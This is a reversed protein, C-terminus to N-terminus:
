MAEEAGRRLTGDVVGVLRALLILRPVGMSIVGLKACLQCRHVDLTKPSIGLLAAIENNPRGNAMLEAIERQRQTLTGIRALADRGLGFIGEILADNVMTM